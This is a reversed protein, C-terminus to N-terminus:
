QQIWGKADTENNFYRLMERKGAVSLLIKPVIRGMISGGCIAVKHVPWRRLSRVAWRRAAIDSRGFESLDALICVTKHEQKLAHVLKSAEVILEKMCSLDIDGILVAVILDHDRYVRHKM